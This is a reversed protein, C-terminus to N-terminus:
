NTEPVEEGNLVVKLTVNSKLSNRVLCYQQESKRFADWVRKAPVEGDVFLTVEIDTFYHPNKEHQTGDAEVRFNKIQDNKVFRRLMALTDMSLCGSLGGLLGVMPSVGKGEGGSEPSADMKFTNGKEDGAVLAMKGHWNTEVLM